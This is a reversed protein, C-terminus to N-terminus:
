LTAAIAKLNALGEIALAEGSEALKRWIACLGSLVEFGPDFSEITLMMKGNNACSQTHHAKGPM